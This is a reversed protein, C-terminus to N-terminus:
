RTSLRCLKGERFTPVFVHNRLLEVACWTNALLIVLGAAWLEVFRNEGLFELKFAQSLWLAQSAAWAGILLLGRARSLRTSPLILPFLCIYWLFYQATCVKNFMVFVFTQMFLAFFIDRGFCAGVLIFSLLQPVFSLLSVVRSASSNYTLYIYYAWVSFNHRHDKRTVHYLYTEELFEWGYFYYMAGTLLFFVGGSVMGFWVRTPTAWGLIRRWVERVNWWQIKKESVRENEDQEGDFDRDLLVLFSLAYIIPYIKFHVALGFLIAGATVRKNLLCDLIALVLAGLLAEANGRTSINAVVPNLLWLSAYGVAGDVGRIQLLRAIFVGVVIDALSFLAKGFIPHLTLNPRLLLALLPTYRYTARLYPSSSTLTFRAADTFVHYDIDTYKVQLHADQYEGWVLLVARLLFALLISTRLNLTFM